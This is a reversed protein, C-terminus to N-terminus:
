RARVARPRARKEEEQAVSRVFDGETLIGVLRSGEVVPLCGLKNEFMTQAAEALRQDPEATEVSSTMVDEVRLTSLIERQLSLPLDEQEILAGRLLDRHSVIGVLDGSADIVTVHRLHHDAMLDYAAQLDDGPTLSHVETTMLDRVFRYDVM